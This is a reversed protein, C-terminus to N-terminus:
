ESSSLHRQLEIQTKSFRLSEVGHLMQAVLPTLAASVSVAFADGSTQIQRFNPYLLKAM